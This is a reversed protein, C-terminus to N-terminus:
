NTQSFQYGCMEMQGATSFQMDSHMPVNVPILM